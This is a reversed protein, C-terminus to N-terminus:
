AGLRERSALLRRMDDTRDAIARRVGSELDGALCQEAASVTDVGVALRPYALLAIQEAMAGPRFRVTGPMEDFYRGVYEETLDDQGPRFFHEAVAFAQWNSLEEDSVLRQWAVAKNEALPLSATSALAHLVGQSSRDREAEADIDEPGLAGAEALARVLRWRFDDDVTVGSPQQGDLWRRLLETDRTSDIFARVTLLQRNSGPEAAELMRAALAAVRHRHDAEPLYTGLWGYVCRNLMTEVVLDSERPLAADLIDLYREPRVAGDLVGERLAGWVAARAVPDEIRSLLRAAEDVSGPDLAIKAWTEDGSDPLLLGTGDYSALAVPTAAERLVLSVESGPGAETFHSVKLAHPRSVHPASPDPRAAHRRLEPGAAGIACSLTDVGSTQLWVDAWERVDAGSAREWSDLLDDLRANGFSHRTLHDVVGGIFGPEGLFANLQRLVAAGKAYSIGDFDTLASEADAVGNGAVPHTTSRQDAALGWAKRVLGFEVMVDTFRTVDRAVRYGMYEAFSENLWLDDWWTMTVLNGFWQHAMEHAIVVARYARLRDTAQARFVLDDRLTVCGPNEMAGANFEPVFAQYYDGFPYRIGFLRHFEDFCAKTVEFLEDADQDLYRALSQRCLLGLTIGDHESRVVHYPGAVLTVFYTSLPRTEALTWEGPGTATATGNGIVTWDDPATISIRYPAKLDPQDFCAFIRPAASLFSMGYVYALKDEPDVARHLGEGDHSYAMLAEVVLVNRDELDTLHLRGDRLRDTDLHRQNLHVHLLEHSQVDVFTDQHDLSDFEIISRSYFHEDGRTLDLHVDYSRVRLSRSRVGAEGVTLSPM